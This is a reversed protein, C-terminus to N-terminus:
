NEKSPIQPVLPQVIQNSTHTINKTNKAIWVSCFDLQLNGEQPEGFFEIARETILLCLHKSDLTKLIHKINMLVRKM